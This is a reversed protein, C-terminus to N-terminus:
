KREDDHLNQEDSPIPNSVQLEDVKLKQYEISPISGRSNYAFDSTASAAVAVAATAKTVSISPENPNVVLPTSSAIANYGGRAAQSAIINATGVGVITVVGTTPDVTAVAPNSSTYTIAGTSASTPLTVTPATGGLSVSPSSLAFGTLTPTTSNVTLPTSLTIASYGGSAAGASIIGGSSKAVIHTASTGTATIAALTINQKVGSTNDYTLTAATGSSNAFTLASTQTITGSAVVNVSTGANIATQIDTAKINTVAANVLDGALSATTSTTAITVNTPDLLWEKAKVTNGDTNLVDGSTEVKNASLSTNTVSANKALNGAGFSDRGIAVNGQTANITSSDIAINNAAQVTVDGQTSTVQTNAVNVQQGTVSVDAKANLNVGEMNVSGADIVINSAFLQADGRLNVMGTTAMGVPKVYQGAKIDQTTLYVEGGTSTVKGGSVVSLSGSPTSFWLNGTSNVEGAITNVSGSIRNLTISSATPTNFQVKEGGAVNFNTWNVTANQSAQNITMQQQQTAITASGDVVQGGTPLAYVSNVNLLSLVAVASALLKRAGRSGKGNMSVNEGVVQCLGTNKNFKVNFIRNM